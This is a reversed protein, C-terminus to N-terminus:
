GGTKWRSKVALIKNSVDDSQHSECADWFMQRYAERLLQHRSMTRDWISMGENARKVALIKNSVGDSQHSECM